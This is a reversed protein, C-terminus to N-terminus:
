LGEVDYGWLAQSDTVIPRVDWGITDGLQEATTAEQAIREAL